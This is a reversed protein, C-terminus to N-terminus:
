VRSSGAAVTVSAGFNDSGTYRKLVEAAAASFISHGSIFEPFPPTVVSAAQYPRWDKGDIWQTGLGPGAWARIPVGTYLFRVATVPRVSDFYRKAGWSAISADFVANTMAFFMPVDEDVSHLDRRSVAEGFLCWHRSEFLWIEPGVCPLGHALCLM